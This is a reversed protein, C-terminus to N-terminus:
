SIWVTPDLEREPQLDFEGAQAGKLFVEWEDRTFMALARQRISSRVTILATDLGGVEVCMDPDTKCFSSRVFGSSM